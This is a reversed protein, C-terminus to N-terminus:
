ESRLSDVPNARAARVTQFSVTTLAISVALAAAFVFVLASIEVRFAFGDLWTSAGIWTLPIAWHRSLDLVLDKDTLENFTPLLAFVLSLEDCM